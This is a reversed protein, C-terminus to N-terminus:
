QLENKKPAVSTRTRLSPVNNVSFKDSGVPGHTEKLVVM